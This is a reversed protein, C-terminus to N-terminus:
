AEVRKTELNRSLDYAYCIKNNNFDTRSSVNAQADYTISSSAPGCGSGAPQSQNTLRSVGGVNQFQYTRSTGLPDTVNAGAGTHLVSFRNVGLAAETSTARGAADYRYTSRAQDTEDVIGTLLRIDGGTGVFAAEGYLYRKTWTGAVTVSAMANCAPSGCSAPSQYTYSIQQGSPETLTNLRGFSDYGFSLRRGFQDIATLLVVPATTSYSLDIRKGDVTTRSRLLGAADYSEVVNDPYTVVWGALAGGGSPVRRLRYNQKLDAVFNGQVETFGIVQTRDASAILQMEKPLGQAVLRDGIGFAPFARSLYEGPNREVVERVSVAIPGNGSYDILRRDLISSFRRYDSRYTRVFNLTGRPDVFDMETSVKTGTSLVIPNGAVPCYSPELVPLSKWCYIYSDLGSAWGGRNYGHPCNTFTNVAALNWGSASTSPPSTYTYVYRFPFLYRNPRGNISGVSLDPYMEGVECTISYGYGQPCTTEILNRALQYAEEPADVLPPPPSVYGRFFYAPELRVIRQSDANASSTVGAIAVGM